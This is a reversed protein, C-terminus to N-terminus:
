VAMACTTSTARIMRELEWTVTQSEAASFGASCLLRLQDAVSWQWIDRMVPLGHFRLCEDVEQLLPTLMPPFLLATRRAHAADYVSGSRSPAAATGTATAHLSGDCRYHRPVPETGRQSRYGVNSGEGKDRVLSSRDGSLLSAAGGPHMYSDVLGGSRDGVNCFSSSFGRSADGVKEGDAGGRLAAGDRVENEYEAADEREVSERHTYRYAAPLIASATLTRETGHRQRVADQLQLQAPDSPNTHKPRRVRTVTAWEWPQVATADDGDERGEATASGERHPGPMSSSSGDRTSVSAADRLVSSSVSFEREGYDAEAEGVGHLLTNLGRVASHHLPAHEAWYLRRDEASMTAGSRTHTAHLLSARASARARRESALSCEGEARTHSAHSHVGRESAASSGPSVGRPALSLTHRQMSVGRQTDGVAERLYDGSVENPKRAQGSVPDLLDAARVAGGGSLGLRLRTTTHHLPPGVVVAAAAGGGKGSSGDAIRETWGSHVRMYRQQLVGERLRVPDVGIAAAIGERYKQINYNTPHNATASFTSSPARAVAHKDAVSAPLVALGNYLRRPAAAGPGRRPVAFGSPHATSEEHVRLREHSPHTLSTTQMVAAPHAAINSSTSADRYFRYVSAAAADSKYKCAASTSSVNEKRHSSSRPADRLRERQIATTGDSGSRQYTEVDAYRYAAPDVASLPSVDDLSNPHSPPPSATHSRSATAVSRTRSRAPPPPPAASEHGAAPKGQKEERAQQVSKGAHSTSAAPSPITPSAAAVDGRSPQRVQQQQQARDLGVDDVVGEDRRRWWPPTPYRKDKWVEPAEVLVDYTSPAPVSRRVRPPPSEGGTSVPTASFNTESSKAVSAPSASTRRPVDRLVDRDVGDSYDEEEETTTNTPLHSRYLSAATYFSFPRAGPSFAAQTSAQRQAEVTSAAYNSVDDLEATNSEM